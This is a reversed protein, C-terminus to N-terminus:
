RALVPKRTERQTKEQMHTSLIKTVDKLSKGKNTRVFTLSEPYFKKVKELSNGSEIFLSFASRHQALLAKNSLSNTDSREIIKKWFTKKRQTM